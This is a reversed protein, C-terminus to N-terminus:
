THCGLARCLLAKVDLAPATAGPVNKLTWIGHPYGEERLRTVTQPGPIGDAVLGLAEQRQAWVKRDEGAAFDFVEYGAGALRDLLLDGPDGSGRSSTQDRHGFVGVCDLGGKALRTFPGGRYPRHIQRQIGLLRCQADSLTVMSALVADYIAGDSEQYGENGVSIPNVNTAHWTMQTLLDAIQVVEGARGVICDASNPSAQTQYFHAVDRAKGPKGAGPRITQPTKNKGGPIGKTTHNIILRVWASPRRAGTDNPAAKLSPDDVFNTIALGDVKYPKGALILNGM